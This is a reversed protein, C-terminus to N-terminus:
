LELEMHRAGPIPNEIYPEIDKFGLSKYLEIAKIMPPLTDLRMREYGRNRGGDIVANVLRYGLQRGRFKPRVYLRKMECIGDDLKRLAVCGAVASGDRAVLICGDPPSYDGPLTALEIDFGQVSGDFGLWNWYEEFLERATEIDATSEAPIIKM